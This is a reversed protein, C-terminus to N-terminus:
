GEKWITTLNRRLHAGFDEKGPSVFSCLALDEEDLELCGLAEARELDDMALARLLFTPLIYSMMATRDGGFIIRRGQLQSLSEIGSGKRVFLASKISSEGFEENQAIAEYGYADHARIYQYQNLHVLDFRRPNLSRLFTYFNASTRLKVPRGLQDELYRALPTFLHMTLAANRRPFVGIILPPDPQSYVATPGILLNVSLVVALIARYAPVKPVSPSISTKM